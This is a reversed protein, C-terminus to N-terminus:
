GPFRYRVVYPEDEEGQQVSWIQNGRAVWPTTMPPFRIQGLYTGDSRFVDWIPQDRWLVSPLEPAGPPLRRRPPTFPEGKAHLRVWIRNDDDFFLDAYFPKEAPVDGQMGSTQVGPRSRMAELLKRYTAREETELRIRPAVRELRLLSRPRTVVLVYSDTRGFVVSGDRASAWLLRPAFVMGTEEGPLSPAPVTDLLTGDADLRAEGLKWPKGPQPLELTVRVFTQGQNDVRLARSTHLSNPALWSPLITGDIRYRNVRANRPDSLRLISDPGFALGVCARYEGPGSGVRGVDRLYAGRASFLRLIPVSPDFVAITGDPGVALCSIFTFGAPGDDLSGIRLEEVLATRDGWTSGNVTRIVTTDGRQQREIKLPGSPTFPQAAALAPPLMLVLVMRVGTIM